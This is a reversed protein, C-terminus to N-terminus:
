MEFKRSEPLSNEHVHFVSIDSSRFLANKKLILSKQSVFLKENYKEYHKRSKKSSNGIVGAFIPVNDIFFFM